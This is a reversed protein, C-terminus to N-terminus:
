KACVTSILSDLDEVDAIGRVPAEGILKEGVVLLLPQRLQGTDAFSLDMGKQGDFALNERIAALLTAGDGTQSRAIMDSLLKVAAWGSWADDNMTFGYKQEFRKNLQTAAYKEFAPHWARATVESAEPNAQQWQGIAKSRMEDSAMVHLLNPHCDARLDDATQSVNFVPQSPFREALRLLIEPAAAVVFATFNSTAELNPELVALSYRQGLFEGQVKAEDLGLLAGHHAASDPAGVFAIRIDLPQGLASFALMPLALVLLQCASKVHQRYCM